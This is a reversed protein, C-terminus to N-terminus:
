RLSREGRLAPKDEASASVRTSNGRGGGSLKSVLPFEEPHRISEVSLDVDLAPWYLHDPGALEVNTIEVISADMFWPFDRFPLFLEDDGVLLWLGHPTVNAVEVPSTGTGRPASTM